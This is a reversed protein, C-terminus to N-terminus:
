NCGLGTISINEPTKKLFEKHDRFGWDCYFGWSKIVKGSIFITWVPIPNNFVDNLLEVKHIAHGYRIIPIISPKRLKIITERSENKLWAETNKPMHELYSGHLLISMNFNWPHNHLVSLDSLLFNHLFINFFRNHPIIYWRRLYVEPDSRGIILDPERYFIRIFYQFIEKFM